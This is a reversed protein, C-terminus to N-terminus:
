PASVDESPQPNVPDEDRASKTSFNYSSNIVTLKLHYKELLEKEEALWEAHKHAKENAFDPHETQLQELSKIESLNGYNEAQESWFTQLNGCLLEVAGLKVM